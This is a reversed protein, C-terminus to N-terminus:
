ALEIEIVQPERGNLDFRAYVSKEVRELRAGSAKGNLWARHLTKGAPLLISLTVLDASSTATVALRRTREDYNYDYAVYGQSAPYRVRVRAAKEGSAAWRPSVVARDFGSGADKVGAMGEVLACIVSGTWGDPIGTSLDDYPAFFVPASSLTAALVLWRGKAGDCGFELSTIERDPYPNNVGTVYVGLEPRDPGSSTWAVRYTDRTRPGDHSYRTDAPFYWSRADVNETYATGDAYHLTLTARSTEGGDAANLLYISAARGGVPVAISRTWPLQRSLIMCTRSGSQAPDLIELPIGHFEQRGVPLDALNALRESSWVPAQQAGIGHSANAAGGITLVKFSRAPVEVAKGRLTAPLYGRYRDAIAKLRQLIDVGYSEFGHEFAGHALEGGVFPLVGGNCYEWVMGPQNQTFGRQFPPYIGYFEGPSSAPMEQRIRRYTELVAVCKEHAIGRNLAYANSLSVQTSMDVGRDPHYDPNEAIWHTFFDGNWSLANLRAEVDSALNEFEPAESARGAARLMIALNRCQAVLNTNDGHFIGFESKGLYVNFSCDGFRQQDDAVYDWTDITVGRHMLQYKQSWRYPNRVVFRLARIAADLKGKMWELDGNAQWSSYIGEVFYQEVHSEVPARRLQWFGDGIKRVFGDYNFKWDFYNSDPTAPYCNEWIMGDERQTDAFFDIAEKVDPWFYKMGKLILTHDFIWNAFLQYTRGNHRIASVPTNGNWSMMTWLVSKMLSACTGGADEIETPCDLQFHAEAIVAGNEEEIRATQRGLAGGALFVVSGAAAKRFYERGAGDTIVVTGTLSEGDAMHLTVKELPRYSSVGTPELVLSMGSTQARAVRPLNALTVAALPLAKLLDRRNSKMM